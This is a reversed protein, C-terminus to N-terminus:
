IRTKAHMKRLKDTMDKGFNTQIVLFVGKKGIKCTKAGRFSTRAYLAQDQFVVRVQILRIGGRSMQTAGGGPESARRESRTYKKNAAKKVEAQHESLRVGFLRLTEGVYTHDCKKCSIEYVCNSCQLKDRKDKPPCAPQPCAEGENM